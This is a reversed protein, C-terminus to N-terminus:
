HDHFDISIYAHAVFYQHNKKCAFSPMRFIPTVPTLVHVRGIQLQGGAERNPPPEPPFAPPLQKLPWVGAFHPGCQQSFCSTMCSIPLPDHLSLTYIETTATDNFFFFHM